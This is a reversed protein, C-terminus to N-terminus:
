IYMKNKIEKIFLDKMPDTYKSEWVHVAISIIKNLKSEKM